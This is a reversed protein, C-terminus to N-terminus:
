RKHLSCLTKRRNREEYVEDFLTSPQPNQLKEPGYLPNRLGLASDTLDEAWKLDNKPETLRELAKAALRKMAPNATRVRGAVRRLMDAPNM